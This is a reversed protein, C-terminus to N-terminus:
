RHDGDDPVPTVALVGLKTRTTQHAVPSKEDDDSEDDYEDFEAGAQALSESALKEIEADDMDEKTSIDDSSSAM